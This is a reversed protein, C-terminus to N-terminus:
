SLNWNLSRESEHSMFEAESLSTCTCQASMNVHNRNKTLVKALTQLFIQRNDSNGHVWSCTTSTITHIQTCTNILLFKHLPVISARVASLMWILIFSKAAFVELWSECLNLPVVWHTIKRENKPSQRNASRGNLWLKVVTASIDTKKAGSIFTVFCWWRDKM